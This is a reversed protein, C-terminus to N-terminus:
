IYCTEQLNIDIVCENTIPPVFPKPRTTALCNACLPSENGNKAATSDRASVLGSTNNVAVLKIDIVRESNGFAYLLNDGLTAIQVIADKQLAEAAIPIVPSTFNLGSQRCGFANDFDDDRM